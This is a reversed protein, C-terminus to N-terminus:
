AERGICSLATGIVFDYIQSIQPSNGKGTMNKGRSVTASLDNCASVLGTKEWAGEELGPGIWGGRTERQDLYLKLLSTAPSDYYGTSNLSIELFLSLQVELHKIFLLFSLLEFEMQPTSKRRLVKVGM